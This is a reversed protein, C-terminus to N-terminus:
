SSSSNTESARDKRKNKDAGGKLSKVQFANLKAKKPLEKRLNALRKM